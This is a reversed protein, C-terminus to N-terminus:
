SGRLEAGCAASYSVLPPDFSGGRMVAGGSTSRRSKTCGGGDSDTYVLVNSADDQWGYEVALRPHKNLHRVVRKILVEDGIKRCSMLKSIEKSAFAIDVRDQALYKLTAAARRLKSAEGSTVKEGGVEM